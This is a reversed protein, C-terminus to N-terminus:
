SGSIGRLKRERRSEGSGRLIARVLVQRQDRQIRSMCEGDWRLHRHLASLVSPRGEPQRHLLSGWPLLGLKGERSNQSPGVASSGAHLLNSHM